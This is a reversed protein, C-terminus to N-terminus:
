NVGLSIKGQRRVKKRARRPELRRSNAASRASVGDQLVEEDEDERDSLPKSAQRQGRRADGEFAEERLVWRGRHSKGAFRSGQGYM